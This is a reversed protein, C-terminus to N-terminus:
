ISLLMAQRYNNAHTTNEIHKITVKACKKVIRIRVSVEYIIVAEFRLMCNPFRM